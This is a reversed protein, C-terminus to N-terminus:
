TTRLGSPNNFRSNKTVMKNDKEAKIAINAKKTYPNESEEDLDLDMNYLTNEQENPM